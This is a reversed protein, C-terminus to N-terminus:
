CPNCINSTYGDSDIQWFGASCGDISNTYYSGGGNFPTTLAGDQFFRVVSFWDSTPSYITVSLTYSVAGAYCVSVTDGTSVLYATSNEQLILPNGDQTILQNGEQDLIQIEFLQETPTPTPTPTSTPTETQTPTFTPTPTPTILCGNPDASTIQGAGGTVQYWAIGNSYFGDPAPITLGSDTWLTEGINPGPGDGPGSYFNSPSIYYDGCANVSSSVDYGLSYEWYLRSPTPTQTPTNTPTQTNTPTVTPSATISPTPTPTVDFQSQTNVVFATTPTGTFSLTIGSYVSTDDLNNYDEAITFNSVGSTQGSLILVSGSISIPSGTIVGLTDVFSVEVDVDLVANSNATYLVQISGPSFFSSITITITGVTPTPTPTSSSTQTPTNTPTLSPTQTPTQTPTSTATQTQTPTNTPTATQTPTPSPTPPPTAGPSLTPTQTPTQSPTNSPTLTQTPTPTQTPTISSTPTVTSTRTPTQTITQTPTQTPTPTNSATQSPTSTITPTVTPTVCPGLNVTVGALMQSRTQASYYLTAASLPDPYTSVYVDFPGLANTNPTIRVIYTNCTTASVQQEIYNDCGPATNVVFISQLSM